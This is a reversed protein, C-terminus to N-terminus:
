IRSKETIKYTYYPKFIGDQRNKEHVTVYTEWVGRDKKGRLEYRCLSCKVGLFWMEGEKM